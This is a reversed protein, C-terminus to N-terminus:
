PVAFCFVLHPRMYCANLTVWEQDVASYCNGAVFYDAGDSMPGCCSELSIIALNTRSSARHCVCNTAGVFLGDFVPIGEDRLRQVGSPIGM